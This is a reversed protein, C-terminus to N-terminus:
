PRCDKRKKPDCVSCLGDDCATGPYLNCKSCLTGGLNVAKEGAFAYVPFLLMFQFKCRGMCEYFRTGNALLELFTNYDTQSVSLM